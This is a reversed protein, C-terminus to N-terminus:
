GNVQVPESGPRSDDLCEEVQPCNLLGRYISRRFAAVREVVEEASERVMIKQGNTLTIM